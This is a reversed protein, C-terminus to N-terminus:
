NCFTSNINLQTFNDVKFPLTQVEPTTTKTTPSLPPPPPPPPSKFNTTNQQQNSPRAENEITQHLCKEISYQSQSISPQDV